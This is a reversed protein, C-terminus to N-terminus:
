AIEELLRRCQPTPVGLREGIRIITGQLHDVELPRGTVHSQWTSGGVREMGDIPAVGMPCAALLADVPVYSLGAADFVAAGEAVLARWREVDLKPDLIQLAGGLNTLHKGRKWAMVDDRTRARFGAERFLTSLAEDGTDLAGPDPTGHLRVEGPVLHTAPVYVMVPLAVHGAAEVLEENEIGNQLCAVRSGPTLGAIADATDQSKVALLVLDTAVPTAAAPLRLRESWEPTRLHLGDRQLAELHAGRAVLTVDHGARHLM